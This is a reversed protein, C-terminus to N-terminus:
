TLTVGTQGVVMWKTTTSIFCLTENVADFSASTAASGGIVNTLALTIANTSGAVYQICLPTGAVTPAALTIAYTGSAGDILVHRIAGTATIAGAVTITQTYASVDAINNIEAATAGVATAGITLAATTVGSTAIVTAGQVAGTATINRQGTIDKNEDVILAKSASATGHVVEELVNSIPNGTVNRPTTTAFAAVAVLCVFAVLAAFKKM